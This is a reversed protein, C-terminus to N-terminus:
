DDAEVIVDVPAEYGPDADALFRDRDALDWDMEAGATEEDPTQDSM